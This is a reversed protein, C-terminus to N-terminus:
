DNKDGNIITELKKLLKTTDFVVSLNRIEEFDEREDDPINYDQLHRIIEDINKYDGLSAYEYMASYAEKLQENSIEEEKKLNNYFYNVVNGLDIDLKKLQEMLLKHEPEIEEMTKAESMEELLAAQKSIDMAGILRLSSKLGHVSVGYKSLDKNDFYEELNDMTQKLTTKITIISNKLTEKTMCNKLAVVSDIYEIQNFVNLGENLSDTDNINVYNNKRTSYIKDEPLYMILSKELDEGRVPKTLYDTFGLNIYQDRMGNIANATLVIVPVSAKIPDSNQRIKELTEVGDMDPMRHDLFIVDYNNKEILKLADKGCFAIDTRIKTDSLLGVVVRANVEVDDVVLISANPAEFSEKYRNIKSISKKFQSVVDGCPLWAVIKQRVTFSFTSGIGYVSEIELKSGMKKLIENTLHLGLGAGEKSLNINEELREFPMTVREIDEKKIGIGTDSVVIFIDVTESDIKECDISIAVRGAKTYSIANSLINHICEKLRQSDGYLRLPIDPNVYANFDLNKLIAIEYNMALIDTILNDFRYPIPNVNLKGSEINSYDRLENVFTLLTRTSYEINQAYSVINKDKAERLILENMGMIANLPTRVEHSMKVLFQLSAEIKEKENNIKNTEKSDLNAKDKGDKDLDKSSKRLGINKIHNIVLFLNVICLVVMVCSLILILLMM